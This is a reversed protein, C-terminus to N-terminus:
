SSTGPALDRARRKEAVSFHLDNFRRMSRHRDIRERLEAGAEDRLPESKEVPDNGKDPNPGWKVNVKGGLVKAEIFPRINLRVGDNLDPNWGIPQEALSKWRVYIDYPPEGNQIAILKTRLETAAELRAPAAEVDNAVDREQRGIWDGLYTYILKTLAGHDLRHYNVVAAFGDKRGDSILWLFPRNQFLKVHQAFFGNAGKDRLWSELSSANVQALLARQQEDSWDDGWATALLTQLRQHAPAEQYVSPLCVIGDPDSLADLGDEVQDPWRYGLLRALAVQLPHDCGPITGDFLWQTPDSSYPEPLGNPYQEEAVKQWRELDFPVKVLTLNTVAVKRDIQRVLLNFEKSTCFCWIAELHEPKKPIITNVSHLYKEGTYITKPLDGMNSVSIGLKGWADGGSKWGGLKGIKKLKQAHEFYRGTGNQWHLLSQRGGYHTTDDAPTHLLEWDRSKSKLEWFLKVFSPIDSTAMGQIADAYESLLPGGEIQELAIRADPNKLQRSQAVLTLDGGELREAKADPGPADSADIGAFHQEAGPPTATLIPLAVNVVEGSITRFAGTGLRAILNLEDRELLNKRLKKYAGLFLWNQPTVIAVTGAGIPNGKADDTPAVFALCRELFLTALDNKAEPWTEDAFERLAQEHSGRSLYPVNTAILTYSRSLLEAAHLSGTLDDEAFIRQGNTSGPDREIATRMKRELATWDDVLVLGRQGFVSKTPLKNVQKPDILSGLESAKSFLDYLQELAIELNTDGKALAIWRDKQGSVPIGSCAIQPRNGPQEPAGGLKWAELAVAFTAIQTCRADLELGFLNDRLVANAADSPNLGEEEQRMAVLMQFAAVLFHGSGCCPDIVTVEAVREPWTPFSGAAPTGDERYRLYQWDSALTTEPNRSVYWAGLSNQLLFDVIYDETFLQTVPPLNNGTIKKGAANVEDKRKAQWFQYGWGLSDSATFIAPELETVVQALRYRDEIALRLPVTLHFLGPLRDAAFEAALEWPDADQESALAQLDGISLAVGYEPHILLGNEALVRAFLIRHWTEYALEEVLYPEGLLIAERNAANPNERGRGLDRARARLANRLTRDADAISSPANDAALDLGELRKRVGAEAIRRAQLTAQKLRDREESGMVAM